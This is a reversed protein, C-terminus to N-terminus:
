AIEGGLTLVPNPSFKEIFEDIFKDIFKNIILNPM